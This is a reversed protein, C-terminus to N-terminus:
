ILCVDGKPNKQLGLLSLLLSDPLHYLHQGALSVIGVQHWLISAEGAEFCADTLAIPNVPTTKKRKAPYHASIHTAM